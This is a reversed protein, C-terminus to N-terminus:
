TISLLIITFHLLNFHENARVHETDLKPEQISVKQSTIPM